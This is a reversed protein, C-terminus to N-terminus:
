NSQPPPSKAWEFCERQRDRLFTKEDTVLYGLRKAGNVFGKLADDSLDGTKLGDQNVCIATLLPIGRAHCIDLLRDLHGQPGNMAHRAVNWPVGNVKALNGYTTFRGAQAMENLHRLSVEPKLGRFQRKAREELLTKYFPDDTAGKREYNRIWTDIEDDRKTGLDIEPM